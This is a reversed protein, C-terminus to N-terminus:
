RFRLSGKGSAQQLQSNHIESAINFLVDDLYNHKLITATVNPSPTNVHSSVNGKNLVSHKNYAVSFWPLFHEVIIQNQVGHGMKLIICKSLRSSIVDVQNQILFPFSNGNLTNVIEEDWISGFVRVFENNCGEGHISLAIPLLTDWEEVSLSEANKLPSENEQLMRFNWCSFVREVTPRIVTLCSFTNTSPFSSYNEERRLNLTNRVDDYFLHGGYLSFIKEDPPLFYTKCSVNGYCPLFSTLNMQHSANYLMDRISSGGTKRLHFFVFPTMPTPMELPELSSFNVVRVALEQHHRSYKENLPDIHIDNSIILYAFQCSLILLGLVPLWSSKSMM